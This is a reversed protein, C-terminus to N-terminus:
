MPFSLVNFLIKSVVARVYTDSCVFVQIRYRIKYLKKLGFQKRVTNGLSVLPHMGRSTYVIVALLHVIVSECLIKITVLVECYM